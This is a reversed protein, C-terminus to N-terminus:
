FCFFNVVLYTCYALNLSIFLFYKFFVNKPLFCYSTDYRQGNSFDVRRRECNEDDIIPNDEHVDANRSLTHDKDFCKGESSVSWSRKEKQGYRNLKMEMLKDEEM